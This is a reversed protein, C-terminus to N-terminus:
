LQHLASSRLSAPKASRTRQADRKDCLESSCFFMDSLFPSSPSAVLEASPACSDPSGGGFDGTEPFPSAEGSIVATVCAARKQKKRAAGLRGNATEAALKLAATELAATAGGTAERM